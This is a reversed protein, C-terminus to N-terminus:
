GKQATSSANTAVDLQDLGHRIEQALQYPDGVKLQHTFYLQPQEATEQNYLCEVSWGQKRMTQMLPNIESATMAFDPAVAARSGHPDLPEFHINTAINLYPSISIGGLTVRGRRPVLVVVTGDEGVTAKAGLIHGIKQHDFPTHPNHPSHQPRPTPTTALVAAIGHALAVPHGVGRFHMFFVSPHLDMFHQHLAQFELGHHLMADIARDVEQPRFPFDANFIARNNGLDQFFFDGSLAWAPRFPIRKGRLNPGTPGTVNKLDKRALTFHSLGHVPKAHAGIIKEMQQVPLGHAAAQDHGPGSGADNGNTTQLASASRALFLSGAAATGIGLTLRRGLTVSQDPTQDSQQM